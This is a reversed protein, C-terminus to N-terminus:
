ADFDEETIGKESIGADVIPTSSSIIQDPIPQNNIPQSSASPQIMDSQETPLESQSAINDIEEQTM